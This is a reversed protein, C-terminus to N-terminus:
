RSSSSRGRWTTTTYLAEFIHATVTRSYLDNIQRTSAPRPSASPSACCRPAAGAAGRPPPAAALRRRTLLARYASACRLRRFTM